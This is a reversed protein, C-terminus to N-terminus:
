RQSFPKIPFAKDSYFTTFECLGCIKDTCTTIFSELSKPLRYFTVPWMHNLIIEQELPTLKFYKQANKLARKPHTLAHIHDGTEAAHTHWDYLFLDHVMAARAASRANLGFFKCIQFNYYSVNLCHQFCDTDCHHNYKKMEQVVPHEYMDKIVEYFEQNLDQKKQRAKYVLKRRM